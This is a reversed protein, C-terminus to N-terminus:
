RCWWAGVFEDPRGLNDGSGHVVEDRVGAFGVIEVKGTDTEIISDYVIPTGNLITTARLKM